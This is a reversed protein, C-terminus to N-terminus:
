HRHGGDWWSGLVHDGFGGDSMGALLAAIVIMAALILLFTKLKM